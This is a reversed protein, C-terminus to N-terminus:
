ILSDPGSFMQRSRRAYESASFLGRSRNQMAYNLGNLVDSSTIRGGSIRQEDVMAIDDLFHTCKEHYEVLVFPIQLLYAAIGGHLRISLFLSCNAIEDLSAIPCDYDVLRTPIGCQTLNEALAKSAGIDGVSENSNLVLVSVAYDHESAFDSVGSFIARLRQQEPEIDGGILSEYRCISVGLVRQAQEPRDIRELHLCGALDGHLHLNSTIGLAKCNHYSADDRVSVHRLLNLFARADDRDQESDFPGVSIGIASLQCIKLRALWSQVRRMRHSSKSAVVSGGSLVVEDYRLCGYIMFTLRLLKGVLGQGTYTSRLREPVIFRASIGKIPPALIAFDDTFESDQLGQVCALSFLDDGFNDFGYYGTFLIKKGM